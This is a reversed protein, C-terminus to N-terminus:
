AHPLMCIFLSGSCGPIFTIYWNLLSFPCLLAERPHLHVSLPSLHAKLLGFPLYSLTHYHKNICSRLGTSITLREGRRFSEGFPNIGTESSFGRSKTLFLFSGSHKKRCRGYRLHRRNSAIKINNYIGLMCQCVLTALTYPYLIKLLYNPM